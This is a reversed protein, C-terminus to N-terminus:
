PIFCLQFLWLALFLCSFPIFLLPCARNTETLSMCRLTGVVHLHARPSAWMSCFYVLHINQFNCVQEPTMSYDHEVDPWVEQTYLDRFLPLKEVSGPNRSWNMVRVCAWLVLLVSIVVLLSTQRRTQKIVTVVSFHLSSTVSSPRGTM